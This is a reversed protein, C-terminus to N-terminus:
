RPMIEDLMPHLIGFLAFYRWHLAEWIRHRTERASQRLLRGM